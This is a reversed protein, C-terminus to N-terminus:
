YALTFMKIVILDDKWITKFFSGVHCLFHVPGGAGALGMGVRGGYSGGRAGSVDGPLATPLPAQCSAAERSGRARQGGLTWMGDGELDKRQSALVGVFHLSCIYHRCLM